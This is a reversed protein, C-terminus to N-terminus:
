NVLVTDGAKVHEAFGPLNVSVIQQNGTVPKTTLIFDQGNDLNISETSQRGTRYKPGPLDILISCPMDLKKASDRVTRIRQSHEALTGHSLNFRAINMGARIMWEIVEPTTSAPGLTCVIKTKKKNREIRPM